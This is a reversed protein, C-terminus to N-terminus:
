SSPIPVVSLAEIPARREVDSKQQLSGRMLPNYHKHAPTLRSLEPRLPSPTPPYKANDRDVCRDSDSFTCYPHPKRYPPSHVHHLPPPRKGLRPSLRPMSRLAFEFLLQIHDIEGISDTRVELKALKPSTEAGSQLLLLLSPFPPWGFGPIEHLKDM